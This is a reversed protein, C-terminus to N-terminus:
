ETSMNKSGIRIAYFPTTDPNGYKNRAGNPSISDGKSLEEEQQKKRKENYHKNLIQQAKSM